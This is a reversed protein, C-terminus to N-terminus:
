SVYIMMERAIGAVPGSVRQTEGFRATLRVGHRLILLRQKLPKEKAVGTRGLNGAFAAQGVGEGKTM